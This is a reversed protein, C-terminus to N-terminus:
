IRSKLYSWKIEETVCLAAPINLLAAYLTYTIVAYPGTKIGSFLPFYASRVTGTGAAAASVATLALMLALVAGDLLTFRFRSFATRGPLGYGRCKMSDATDAADEFSRLLLAYIVTLGRKIKGYLGAPTGYSLRQAENIQRAKAAVQPVFRLIMSFLLSLSPSVKAFLFMIKESTMIRSFCAFWIIVTMFVTGSVAGYIVSELTIPNGNIYLLVTAGEHNFATNVAAAAIIAPVSFLLYRLAKAGSVVCLLVLASAFSVALMVPSSSVMSFVICVAFFIFSVWPHLTDFARGM